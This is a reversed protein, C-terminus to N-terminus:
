PGNVHLEIPGGPTNKRADVIVTVVQGETLSVSVASQPTGSADQNCALEPGTCAGDLVYVVTDIDSGFTDFTWLGTAPATWVLSADPANNGGCSGFWNDSLAATNGQSVLGTASGISGLCPGDCVSASWCEEDACDVLGDGNNDLGDNCFGVEATTIDVLVPSGTSTSTTAIGIFVTEGTTMPLTRSTYPKTCSTSACNAAAPGGCEETQLLMIAKECSSSNLHTTFTYTADGPATWVLWKSLSSFYETCLGGELDNGGALGQWAPAGLPGGLWQDVCSYNPCDGLGFCQSDACDVAGDGDNDVGDFCNDSERLEVEIEISANTGEWLKGTVVVYQGQTLPVLKEKIPDGFNLSACGLSPGDCAGSRLGVWAFLAGSYFHGTYRFRYTGTEPAVWLVSSDWDDPYGGCGSVGDTTSSDPGLWTIPGAGNGIAYPYELCTLNCGQSVASFCDPDKCDTVNDDDNDLGDNCQAELPTANLKYPGKQGAYGEVILAVPENAVLDVEVESMSTLPSIDDNCALEAGDCDTTRVALLTDISSQATHIRYRTTLTPAWLHAADNGASPGCSVNTDAGAGNTTGSTNLTKTTPHIHTICGCDPGGICDPDDCDVLGDVDNDNWDTCDETCPPTGVCPEDYCDTFGNQDNDVGDFCSEVCDPGDPCPGGPDIVVDIVCTASRDIFDNDTVQGKLEYSGYEPFSAVWTHPEPKTWSIGGTPYLGSSYISGDPDYSDALSIIFPEDKGVEAPCNLVVVPPVATCANPAGITADACLSFDAANDDTDIWVDPRGTTTFNNPWLTAATEGAFHPGMEYDPGFGLADIVAGSSDLLQVSLPTQPQGLASHVEAASQDTSETASAVSTPSAVVFFGDDGLDGSLAIEGTSAGTDNRLVRISHGSLDLGAPGHIEVFSIFKLGSLRYSKGVESIVLPAELECSDPCGSGDEDLAFPLELELAVGIAINVDSVNILEDCNLDAIALDEPLCGPPGDVGGGIEWLTGVILCQVDAVSTDGDAGLDGLPQVCSAWAGGALLWTSAWAAAVVGLGHRSGM